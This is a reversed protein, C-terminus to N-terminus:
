LEEVHDVNETDKLKLRPHLGGYDRTLKQLAGVKQPQRVFLKVGDFFGYSKNRKKSSQYDEYVNDVGDTV